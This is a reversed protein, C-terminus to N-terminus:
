AFATGATRKRMGVEGEIRHLDEDGRVDEQSCRGDHTQLVIRHLKGNSSAGNRTDVSFYYVCVFIVKM